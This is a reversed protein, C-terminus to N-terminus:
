FQTYERRTIEDRLRVYADSDLGLGALPLAVDHPIENERNAYYVRCATAIDAGVSTEHQNDM